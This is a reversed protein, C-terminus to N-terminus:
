LSQDFVPETSLVQVINPHWKFFSSKTVDFITKKIKAKKNSTKLTSRSYKSLFKCLFIGGHSFCLYLSYKRCELGILIAGYTILYKRCELGIQWLAGYTIFIYYINVMLSIFLLKFQGLHLILNSHYGTTSYDLPIGERQDGFSYETSM